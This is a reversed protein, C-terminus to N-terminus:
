NGRTTNVVPADFHEHAQRKALEEEKDWALKTACKRQAFRTGTQLESRCVVKNESQSQQADQAQQTQSSQLAAQPSSDALAPSALALGPVALYISLRRLM